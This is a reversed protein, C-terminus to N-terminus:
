TLSSIQKKKKKLVISNNCGEEPTGEKQFQKQKRTAYM